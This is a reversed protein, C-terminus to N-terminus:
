VLPGTCMRINVSHFPTFKQIQATTPQKTGTRVEMNRKVGAKKLLGPRVTLFEEVFRKEGRQM